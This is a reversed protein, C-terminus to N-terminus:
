KKDSGYAWDRFGRLWQQQGMWVLIATLAFVVAQTLWNTIASKNTHWNALFHIHVFFWDVIAGSLIAVYPGAFAVIRNLTFVGEDKTEDRSPTETSM